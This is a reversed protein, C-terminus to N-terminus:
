GLEASLAAVVVAHDHVAPLGSVAVYGLAVGSPLLIPFAGGHAAYDHPSLKSNADFGGNGDLDYSVGVALSSDLYQEVVAGKRRAWQDNTTAAGPLATHFAVQTGLRVEAAIPLNEALAIERINCGIRWATDLDFTSFRLTAHQNRLEALLQEPNEGLRDLNDRISRFTETLSKM